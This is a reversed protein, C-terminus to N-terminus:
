PTMEMNDESTSSGDGEMPASEMDQPTTGEMGTPMLVTDVLYVTANGTSVGGCVVTADTGDVGGATVGSEADGKVVLEDGSLTTHTGAVESPELREPVVHYALAPGLLTEPDAMLSESVEPPLDEFATDVPAFVTLAPASNLQDSLGPVSDIAATLQTLLPNTSAATAVPVAAMEAESGAGSAPLQDCAEGFLVGSSSEGGDTASSSPSASPTSDGDNNNDSEDAGDDSCAVMSAGLTLALAATSFGRLRASNMSKVRM